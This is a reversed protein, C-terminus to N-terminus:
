KKWEEVILYIDEGEKLNFEYEKDDLIFKIKNEKPELTKISFKGEKINLNLNSEGLLVNVNGYVIDEYNILVVGNENGFILFTKKNNKINEEYIQNFKEIAIDYSEAQPSIGSDIVQGQIGFKETLNYTIKNEHLFYVALSFLVMLLVVIIVVGRKM